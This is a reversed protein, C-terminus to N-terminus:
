IHSLSQVDDLATAIAHGDGAALAAALEPHRTGVFRALTEAPKARVRRVKLPGDKFEEILDDTM